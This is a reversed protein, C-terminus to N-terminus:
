ENGHNLSQDNWLLYLKLYKIFNGYSSNVSIVFGYLGDMFGARLFYHRIFTYVPNLFVKWLGIKKGSKHANIAWMEAYKRLQDIHKDITYFTYHLMDSRMYGIKAGPQMKVVEHPNGGGWEGKDRKFLRLKADPYWGSHKIPKGCYYNRRNFFYGDYKPQEKIKLVDLKMAESLAEDADLSLILNHSAYKIVRNKQTKYDDFAHRFFLVKEEMCIVETKDNSFSDLVVIEDAVERVSDICRKINREENYTIIVVSLKEM